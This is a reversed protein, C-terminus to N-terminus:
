SFLPDDDGCVPLVSGPTASGKALVVLGKRIVIRLTIETRSVGSDSFRSIRGVRGYVHEVVIVGTDARVRRLIKWVKRFRIATTWRSPKCPHDAVARFVVEGERFEGNGIDVSEERDPLILHFVESTTRLDVV